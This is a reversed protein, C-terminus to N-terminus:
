SFELVMSIRCRLQRKIVEFLLAFALETSESSSGLNVKSTKFLIPSGYVAHSTTSDTGPHLYALWDHVMDEAMM